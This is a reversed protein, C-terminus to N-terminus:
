PATLIQKQTPGNWVASVMIGRRIDPHTTDIFRAPRVNRWPPSVSRKRKVEPSLEGLPQPSPPAEGESDTSEEDSLNFTDSAPSGRTPPGAVLPLSPPTWSGSVKELCQLVDEISPRDGPQHMWCRKLVEWVEDTFWSDEERPREPRGGNVVKTTVVWQSCKHFPVRESLVEYIVMGLAYCDSCITPRHQQIEPDFLEPGM